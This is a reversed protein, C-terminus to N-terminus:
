ANSPVNHTSFVRRARHSSVVDTLMAAIQATLPGRAYSECAALRGNKGFANREAKPMAFFRRVADSMAQPDSPPCCLGAKASEVVTAVDGRAAVLIPKANALYTFVKHPITIRFLPDDRLHVLRLM